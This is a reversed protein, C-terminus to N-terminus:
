LPRGGIWFVAEEYDQFVRRERTPHYDPQDMLAKYLRMITEDAQGSVVFGIKRKGAADDGKQASPMRRVDERLRNMFDYDFGHLKAQRADFLVNLGRQYHENNVLREMRTKSDALDLVGVIKAELFPREFENRLQFDM